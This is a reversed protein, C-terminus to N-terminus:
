LLLDRSFRGGDGILGEGIKVIHVQEGSTTVGFFTVPGPGILMRVRERSNPIRSVRCVAGCFHGVHWERAERRTELVVYKKWGGFRSLHHHGRFLPARSLPDGACEVMLTRNFSAKATRIPYEACNWLHSRQPREHPAGSAFRMLPEVIRDALRGIMGEPVIPVLEVKKM